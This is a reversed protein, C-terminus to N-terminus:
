ADSAEARRDVLASELSREALDDNLKALKTRQSVLWIYVLTCAAVGVFVTALMLNDIPRKGDPRAITSGQHLSRWWVVSFHVLPVELVILLGIVSARRARQHPSADLRRMALYGIYSVFLLAATTLRADWTWFVGWSLRGWIMGSILALGMFVVGVESSAGAVHDFRLRRSPTFLYIASCVATVTFALFATWASPVHVYFLRVSEGQDRDAPSIGLGLVLLAGSFVVALWGVVQTMRMRAMRLGHNAM